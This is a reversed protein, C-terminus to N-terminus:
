PEGPGADGGTAVRRLPPNVWHVELGRRRAVREVVVVYEADQVIRDPPAPLQAPPSSVMGGSSTACAALLVVPAAVLASRLVTKM